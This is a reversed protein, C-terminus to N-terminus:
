KDETNWQERWTALPELMEHTLEENKLCEMNETM